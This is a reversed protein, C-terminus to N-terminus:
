WILLLAAALVGMLGMSFRGIGLGLNLRTSYAQALLAHPGIHFQWLELGESAPGQLTLAVTNEGNRLLAPPVSILLPTNWLRVDAPLVFLTEGNLAVTISDAFKPFYLAQVAEPITDFTVRAVLTRTLNRDEPERTSHYPLPTDTCTSPHARDACLAMSEIFRAGEIPSIRGINLAYILGTLLAVWLTMTVSIWALRGSM